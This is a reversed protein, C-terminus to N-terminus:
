EPPAHPAPPRPQAPPICRSPVVDFAAGIRRQLQEWLRQASMQPSLSHIEVVAPVGSGDEGLVRQIMSGPMLNMMLLALERARGASLTVPARLVVPEIDVPRRLARLAVDVGGAVTQGLFWFGLRVGSLLRRTWRHLGQPPDPPALLLSGATAAVVAVVGYHRHEEGWGAMGAWLLSLVAARLISAPVWRHATGAIQASTSPAPMRAQVEESQGDM